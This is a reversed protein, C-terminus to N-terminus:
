INRRLNGVISPIACHCNMIYSAQRVLRHYISIVWLRVQVRTKSEYLEVEKM